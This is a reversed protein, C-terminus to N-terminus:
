ITQSFMKDTSIGTALNQDFAMCCNRVFPIGKESVKITNGHIEVLQDKVMDGLRSKITEHVDKYISDQNFSTEFHCMLDLIYTRIELDLDSLLHGKFVPLKGENV